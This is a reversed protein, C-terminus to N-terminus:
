KLGWFLEFYEIIVIKFYVMLFKSWFNMSPHLISMSLFSRLFYLQFFITWEVIIASTFGKKMGKHYSAKCRWNYWLIVCPICGHRCRLSYSNFYLKMTAKPVLSRVVFIFYFLSTFFKKAWEFFFDKKMKIEHKYKLICLFFSSLCSIFFLWSNKEEKSWSYLCCFFSFLMCFYSSKFFTDFFTCCYLLLSFFEPPHTLISYLYTIWLTWM